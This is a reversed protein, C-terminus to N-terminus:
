RPVAMNERTVVGSPLTLRILERDERFANWASFVLHMNENRPRRLEVDHRLRERLTYVPQGRRLNEGEALGVLFTHTAEVDIEALVWWSFSVLALPLAVKRVMSAANHVARNITDVYKDGIVDLESNTMRRPDDLARGTEWRHILKILAQRQSVNQYGRRRLTDGYTRALGTDATNYAKTEIGAVFLFLQSTESKVVASLRHQGDFMNGETDIRITAGDFNWFLNTMDRSLGEAYTPRYKRYDVHYTDLLQKAREPGVVEFWAVVDGHKITPTAEPIM